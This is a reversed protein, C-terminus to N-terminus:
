YWKSRYGQRKRGKAKDLREDSSKPRVYGIM